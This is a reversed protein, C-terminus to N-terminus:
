QKLVEGSSALIPICRKEQRGETLIRLEATELLQLRGMRYISESAGARSVREPKVKAFRGLGIGRSHTRNMRDFFGCDAGNSVVKEESFSTWPFLSSEL